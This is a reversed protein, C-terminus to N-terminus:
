ASFRKENGDAEQVTHGARGRDAPRGVKRVVVIDTRPDRVPARLDREVDREAQRRAEIEGLEARDRVDDRDLPELDLHRAPRVRVPIPFNIQVLEVLGACHTSGYGETTLDQAWALGALAALEVERGDVRRVVRVEEEEKQRGVEAANM